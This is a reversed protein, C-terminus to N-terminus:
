PRTQGDLSRVGQSREGQKEGTSTAVFDIEYGLSDLLQQLAEISLNRRKHMINSLTQESIGSIKSIRYRTKGDRGHIEELLERLKDRYDRM